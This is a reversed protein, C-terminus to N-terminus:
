RLLRQIASMFPQYHIELAPLIVAYKGGNKLELWIQYSVAGFLILTIATAERFVRATLGQRANGTRDTWPAHVKAWTEIKAAFYQALDFVADLAREGYKGIAAGITEPPVHWVLRMSDSM